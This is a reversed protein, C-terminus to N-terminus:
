KELLKIIDNKLHPYMHSDIEVTALGSFLCDNGKIIKGTLGLYIGINAKMRTLYYGIGVDPFLGIKTEPMAWKTKETAIRIDSNRSMGVGGGMIIGNMFCIIPKSFNSIKLCNEYGKAFVDTASKEGETKFLESISFLDGRLLLSGVCGFIFIPLACTQVGTM